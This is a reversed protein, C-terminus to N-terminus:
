DWFVIRAGHQTLNEVIIRHHRTNAARVIWKDGNNGDYFKDGVKCSEHAFRSEFSDSQYWFTNDETNTLHSIPLEEVIEALTM